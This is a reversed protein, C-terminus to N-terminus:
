ADFSDLKQKWEDRCVRVTSLAETADELRKLASQMNQEAADLNELAKIEIDKLNKIEELLWLKTIM